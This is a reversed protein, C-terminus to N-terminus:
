KKSTPNPGPTTAPDIGTFSRGRVLDLAAALDNVGDPGAELGRRALTLFDHWDTTVDPHLRYVGTDGVNMLYPQGDPAEGLWLRVWSVASNRTKAGVRTGPWLAEDLAHATSGPHLALFAILELM